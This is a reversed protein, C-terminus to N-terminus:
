QEDNSLSASLGKGRFENNFGAMNKPYLQVANPLALQMKCGIYDVTICM